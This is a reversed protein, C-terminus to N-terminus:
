PPPSRGPMDRMLAALRGTLARHGIAESLSRAHAAVEHARQNDNPRRRQHLATALVEGTLAMYMTAGMREYTASVEDLREIAADHDGILTEFAALHHDVAGGYLFTFPVVLHRGAMPAFRHHLREAHEAARASWCRHAAVIAFPGWHTNDIFADGDTVFWDITATVDPEDIDPTGADRFDDLTSSTQHRGCIAAAIAVNGDITVDAIDPMVGAVASRAEGLLHAYTALDGTLLPRWSRALSAAALLVPERDITSQDIIANMEAVGDDIRGLQLLASAHFPLGWAIWDARGASRGLAILDDALRLTDHARLTNAGREARAILALAAIDNDGRSRALRAAREVVAFVDHNPVNFERTRAWGLAVRPWAPDNERTIAFARDSIALLPAGLRYTMPNTLGALDGTIALVSAATTEDGADLLTSLPALAETARGLRLLARIHVTTLKVTRASREAVSVWRLAEEYGGADLCTAAARELREHATAPDVLDGAAISHAAVTSASTGPIGDMADALRAHMEARRAFSLSAVVADRVLSHTFEAADRPSDRRFLGGAVGRDVADVVRAVSSGSARAVVGLTFTEGALAAYGTVLSVRAGLRALREQVLTRVGDPVMLEFDAAGGRDDPWATPPSGGRHGHASRLLESAFLPHGGTRRLVVDVVAEVDNAPVGGASVLEVLEQRQFPSLDVRVAREDATLGDLWDRVRENGDATRIALLLCMGPDALAAIHEVVSLEDDDLWQADDIAVLQRRGDRRRLSRRFVELQGARDAAAFRPPSFTADLGTLVDSLATLTVTSGSTARGLGVAVGNARQEALVVRLLTSKGVGAEGAIVVVASGATLSEQITALQASRGIMPAPPEGVPHLPTGDPPPEGADVAHALIARETERLEPGPEVGAHEALAARAASCARLAEVQNGAVYHARALRVWLSERLPFEGVLRELEGVAAAAGGTAIDLDLCRERVVLHDAVLSRSAIVAPLWDALEPYPVGRWLGLVLRLQEPSRRRGRRLDAVAEELAGADVEVEVVSLHYGGPETVVVDHGLLRRLRAVHSRVTSEAGAPPEGPWLAEVLEDVAVARDHNLALMSLLVRVRVGPVNIVAGDRLVVLPGLVRLGLM